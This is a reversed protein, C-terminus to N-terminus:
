IENSNKKDGFLYGISLTILPSIIAWFDKIPLAIKDVPNNMVCCTYIIGTIILISVSLAAINNPISKSSGWLKGLYGQNVKQKELDNHNDLVKNALEKDKPLPLNVQNAM